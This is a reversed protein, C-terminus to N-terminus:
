RSPRHHDDHSLRRLYQWPHECECACCGHGDECLDYLDCIGYACTANGRRGRDHACARVREHARGCARVRACVHGCANECGRDGDDGGDGYDSALTRALM